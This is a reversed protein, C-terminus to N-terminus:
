QYALDRTVRVVQVVHEMLFQHIQVSEMLANLVDVIWVTAPVLVDEEWVAEMAILKIVVGVMVSALIAILRPVAVATVFASPQITKLVTEVMAAYLAMLIFKIVIAM